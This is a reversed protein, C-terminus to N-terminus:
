INDFVYLKDGALRVNFMYKVKNRNEYKVFIIFCLWM